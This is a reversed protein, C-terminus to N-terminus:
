ASRAASWWRWASTSGDAASRSSPSRPWTARAPRPHGLHVDLVSVNVLIAVMAVVEPGRAAPATRPAEQMPASGSALAIAAPVVLCPVLLRVM